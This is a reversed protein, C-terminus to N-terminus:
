WADHAASGPTRAPTWGLRTSRLSHGPPAARPSTEGVEPRPHVRCPQRHTLRDANSLTNQFQPSRPLRPRVRPPSRHRRATRRRAGRRQGRGTHTPFSCPPHRALPHVEHPPLRFEGRDGRRQAPIRAARCQHHDPARAAAASRGHQGLHAAVQTGVLHGHEVDREAHLAGVPVQEARSGHEGRHALLELPDVGVGPETRRDVRHAPQARRVAIGRGRPLGAQQGFEGPHEAHDARAAPHRHEGVVHVRHGPRHQGQRRGVAGAVQDHGGAEVAGVRRVPGGLQACQGVLHDVQRRQGVRVHAVQQPLRRVHRDVGRQAPCQAGGETRQVAVRTGQQGGQRPQPPVAPQHGHVVVQAQAIAARRDRQGVLM